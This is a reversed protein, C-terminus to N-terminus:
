SMSERKWGNAVRETALQLLEPVAELYWFTHEIKGHGLYTVLKPLEREVDVGARYWDLLTLAAFRHRLDHLRPGRGLRYRQRGVLDRASARHGLRRSIHAFQYRASWVTIRRSTDSVFFAPAGRNGMITDRQEAYRELAMRTTPHLPVLRTKGFKTRRITLVGEVLDVDARDLKVAESMRLGTVALLGFYTAYTPGRLAKDSTLRAATSVLAAVQEHSHLFPRM